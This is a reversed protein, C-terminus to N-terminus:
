ANKAETVFARIRDLDKVGPASELGSSADVGWPRFRSVAQAVSQPRLGGALVYHSGPDPLWEMPVPTGTGGLTHSSHADLLPLHGKPTDSLDVPGRVRVPRIVLKGAAAAAEAAAEVHAGYPQVGDAGVREITEMLEAAALGVTLIVVPVESRAALDAAREVTIARPSQQILVLGVADAGAGAAAEIDRMSRLGCVKVWTM